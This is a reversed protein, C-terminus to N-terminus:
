VSPLLPAIWREIEEPAFEHIWNVAILLDIQPERVQEFDGVRFRISRGHLFRAARIVAPDRDYGLRRSASIRSLIGGLGCGVEVVCRPHLGNALRALQERYPRASNPSRAHWRDFGFLWGLAELAAMDIKVRVARALTGPRRWRIKLVAAPVDSSDDNRETFASPLMGGLDAIPFITPADLM